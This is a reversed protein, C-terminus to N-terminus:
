LDCSVLVNDLRGFALPLAVALVLHHCLLQARAHELLELCLFTLLAAIDLISPLRLRQLDRNLWAHLVFLDTATTQKSHQYIIGRDQQGRDAGPAQHGSTPNEHVPCHHDETLHAEQTAQVEPTKGPM